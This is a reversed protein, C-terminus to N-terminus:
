KSHVTAATAAKVALMCLTEFSVSVQDKRREMEEADRRLEQVHEKLSGLIVTAHDILRLAENQEDILSADDYTKSKADVRMVQLDSHIDILKYLMQEHDSPKQIKFGEVYDIVAAFKVKLDNVVDSGSPNFSVRVRKEGITM